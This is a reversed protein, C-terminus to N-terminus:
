NTEQEAGELLPLAILVKDVRHADMDVVEFRAANWFFHDGSVPMRGLKDIVFGALTHYEAGDRMNKLNLLAEVEDIPMMGDILWRGDERQVPQADRAQGKEPIDGVIAELIDTLSVMGEVSGYEDIVIALHQGAQKFQDLLRLVSTTDPVKLVPRMATQLNITQGTASMYLLDKAYVVGLVDSMDGSAVPFRSYGSTQVIQEWETEPDDIGIWIMDLRPTMVGRVTRDALRMVSELMTKESPKFVGSEAGEAILDKVEAETVSIEDPHDLGFIKLLGETSFTLLWVVPTLVRVFFAVLPAVRVAIIEAYNLGIRKPLLEGIVLNLYTVGAVTLVLAVFAGNPAISEYRNLYDGLPGAWAAGSFAGALVSNLTMGVQVVSLFKSPDDALALALAAGKGNGEALQKLRARRASVLALESMAFFGNLLLLFLLIGIEAFV